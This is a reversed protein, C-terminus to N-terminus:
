RKYTCYHEPLESAESDTGANEVIHNFMQRLFNKSMEETNFYFRDGKEDMRYMGIEGFGLGKVGWSFTGVYNPNWQGKEDVHKEKPEFAVYVFELNDKDYEGMPTGFMNIDKLETSMIGKSTQNQVQPSVTSV